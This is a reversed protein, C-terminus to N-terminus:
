QGSSSPTDAAAKPKLSDSVLRQVLADADRRAKMQSAFDQSVAKADAPLRDWEALARDLDGAHLAAEMRATAPGVGTGAVNGAVPRINVLGKASAVLQDWIGADPPLKNETAVIRDAVPGFWANLDAITPVGKAAFPRLGALTADHPALAAYTDLEAKFSGGRDIATKLANAAVLAAADPQRAAAGVKEQLSALKSELSSITGSTDSVGAAAHDAQSQAVTLKSELTDVRKALQAVDAATGGADAKPLADVQQQVQSLTGAVAEAKIEAAQVNKQLQDLKGQAAADLPAPAPNARLEAIQQQMHALQEATARGGPSPIVDGWQLAYLGALAIVGGAIGALLHSLGSGSGGSSTAPSAAPPVAAAPKDATRHPKETEPKVGAQFPPAENGSPSGFSSGVPKAEMDTEVNRSFDGVPEAPPVPKASSPQDMRKVDSPDLNITVPNRAPKSHRPTGPKAM